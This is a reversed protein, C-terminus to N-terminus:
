VSFGSQSTIFEICEYFLKPHAVEKSTSTCTNTHCAAASAIRFVVAENQSIAGLSQPLLSHLIQYELDVSVWPNNSAASSKSSERATSNNAAPHSGEMAVGKQTWICTPRRMHHEWLIVGKQTWICTLRRLHHKVLRCGEPDLYLDAAELPTKMLTM